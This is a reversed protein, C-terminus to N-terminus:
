IEVIPAALGVALGGNDSFLGAFEMRQKRGVQATISPPTSMLLQIETFSGEDVWWVDSRWPTTSSAVSGSVAVPM